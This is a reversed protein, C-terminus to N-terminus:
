RPLIVQAMGRFRISIIVSSFAFTGTDGGPIWLTMFLIVASITYYIATNALVWTLTPGGHRDGPIHKEFFAQM